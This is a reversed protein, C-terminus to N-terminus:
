QEGGKEPDASVGFGENSLSAEGIPEAGRLEVNPRL